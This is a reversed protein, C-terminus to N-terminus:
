PCACEPRFIGCSLQMLHKIHNRFKVEHTVELSYRLNLIDLFSFIFLIDKSKLHHLSVLIHFNGVLLKWLKNKEDLM